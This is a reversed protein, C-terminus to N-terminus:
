GGLYARKVHANDLMDRAPGSLTVTGTELVFARDAMRLALNANQEVLLVTMGECSISTIIDAVKEVMLPALGMSPEDFMILKPQSILARAIALMQQEGGSLTGALQRRREELIPFLKFCRAVGKSVNQDRGRIFAGVELNEQVTMQPFVRRGEPCHAIGLRVITDPREGNISKGEFEIEGQTPKILGSITKLMTTKGAGNAGILTVMEGNEVELSVGHLAEVNGYCVHLDRIRLM